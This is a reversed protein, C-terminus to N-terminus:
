LVICFMFIIQIDLNHKDLAVHFLVVGVPNSGTRAFGLPKAPRRRLWEALADKVVHKRALWMLVFYKV